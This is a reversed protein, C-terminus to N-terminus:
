AKFSRSMAMTYYVAQADSGYFSVKNEMLKSLSDENHRFAEKISESFSIEQEERARGFSGQKSMQKSTQNIRNVREVARISSIKNLM